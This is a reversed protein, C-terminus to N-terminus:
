EAAAKVLDLGPSKLSGAAAAAPKPAMAMTFAQHIQELAKLVTAIQTAAEESLEQHESIAELLLSERENIFDRVAAIKKDTEGLANRPRDTIAKVLDAVSATTKASVDKM